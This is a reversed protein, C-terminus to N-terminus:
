PKPDKYQWHQVFFILNREIFAFSQVGLFVFFALISRFWLIPRFSRVLFVEWSVEDAASKM